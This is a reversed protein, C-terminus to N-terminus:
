SLRCEMDRSLLKIDLARIRIFRISDLGLCYSKGKSYVYRAPNVSSVTVIEIM